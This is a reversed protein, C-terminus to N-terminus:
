GLILLPEARHDRAVIAFAGALTSILLGKGIATRYSRAARGAM